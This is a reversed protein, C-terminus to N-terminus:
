VYGLDRTIEAPAIPLKKERAAPVDDYFITVGGDKDMRRYMHSVLRNEHMWQGHRTWRYEDIADTPSKSPVTLDPSTSRWATPVINEKDQRLRDWLMMAFNAVDVAEGMADTVGEYQIAVKLEELEIELKRILAEVPLRVWETKHDNKQLKLECQSAFDSLQSRLDVCPWENQPM